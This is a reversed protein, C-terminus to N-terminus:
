FIQIEIVKYVFVAIVAGIFTTILYIWFGEFNGSVLAPTLSRAPNM